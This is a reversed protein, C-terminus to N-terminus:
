DTPDTHSDAVHFAQERTILGEPHPDFGGSRRTGLEFTALAQGPSADSDGGMVRYHIGIAIVDGSDSSSETPLQYGNTQAYVDIVEIDIPADAGFRRESLGGIEAAGAAEIGLVSDTFTADGAYLAAMLDPDGSSWAAAYRDVMVQAEPCADVGFCGFGLMELTEDEFSFEYKTIAEDAFGLVYLYVVPPHESPEPVWPPWVVTPYAVRYAAGDTAVFVQEVAPDAEAWYRHLEELTRVITAKGTITFAGDSPDYFAIDDAFRDTIALDPWSGWFSAAVETADENLEQLETASVPGDDADDGCAVVGVVM